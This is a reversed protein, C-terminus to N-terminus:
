RRTLRRPEMRLGKLGFLLNNQGVTTWDTEVRVANVFLPLLTASGGRPAGNVGRVECTHYRCRLARARYQTLLKPVLWRNCVDFTFEKLVEIEAEVGEELLEDFFGCRTLVRM